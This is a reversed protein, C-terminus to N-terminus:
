RVVHHTYCCEVSTIHSTSIPRYQVVGQVCVGKKVINWISRNRFISDTDEISDPDLRTEVIPSLRRAWGPPQPSVFQSVLGNASWLDTGVTLLEGLAATRFVSTARSQLYAVARPTRTREAVRPPRKQEDARPTRCKDIACPM